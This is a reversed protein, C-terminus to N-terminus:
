VHLYHCVNLKNGLPLNSNILEEQDSGVHSTDDEAISYDEEEAESHSVFKKCIASFLFTFM